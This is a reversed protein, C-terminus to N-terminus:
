VRRPHYRVRLGNLHTVIEEESRGHAYQIREHFLPSHEREEKRHESRLLVEHQDVGRETLRDDMARDDGDLFLLYVGTLRHALRIGVRATVAVVAPRDSQIRGVEDGYGYYNGIIYDWDIFRRDRIQRRFEPRTVFVYDRGHEEERRRARTTTAVPRLYGCRRAAIEMTRSKGVGSPGALALLMIM